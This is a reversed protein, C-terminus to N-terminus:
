SLEKLRAHGDITLAYKGQSREWRREVKGQQVYGELVLKADPCKTAERFQIVTVEERDAIAQLHLLEIEELPNLERAKAKM